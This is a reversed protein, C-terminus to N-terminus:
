RVEVVGLIKHCCNIILIKERSKQLIGYKSAYNAYKKNYKAVSFDPHTFYASEKTSTKIQTKNQYELIEAFSILKLKYSMTYSNNKKGM